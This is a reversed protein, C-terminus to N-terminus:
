ATILTATDDVHEHSTIAFTLGATVAEGKSVKNVWTAGKGTFKEGTGDQYIILYNKDTTLSIAGTVATYNEKTYNYEFEYAPTEPRDLISKSYTDDLATVDITKPASGTAPVSNVSVLKEYKGVTTGEKYLKTGVDSIASM